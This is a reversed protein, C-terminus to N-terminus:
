SHGCSSHTLSITVQSGREIDVTDMLLTSLAGIAAEVVGPNRHDLCSVLPLLANAKLLCFTERASCEGSHVPCLGVVPPPKSFPTLCFSWMGGRPPMEPFESLQKSKVSLNELSLAASIQLEDSGASQLLSTFLEVFNNNIALDLFRPDDLACTFRALIGVIGTQFPAIHKRDGVRVVGRKLDGLRRILLTPAGEDLMARTLQIDRMPLNALLGAAVAQEEMPSDSALLKILTGLQRTTVRLGDALEQNMHPSLLMLLKLSTVRLDPQPAELFQILSVTAGASRIHQVVKAVVQTSSALGVLVQVM